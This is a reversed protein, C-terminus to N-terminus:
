RFPCYDTEARTHTVGRIAPENNLRILVAEIQWGAVQNGFLITLRGEDSGAFYVNLVKEELLVREAAREADEAMGAWALLPALLVPLAALSNM